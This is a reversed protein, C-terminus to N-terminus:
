RSREDILDFNRYEIEGDVLEGMRRAFADTEPRSSNEMALEYSEFEAVILYGNERDRDKLIRTNLLGPADQSERDYQDAMAAIEEPRKTSYSITQVFRM